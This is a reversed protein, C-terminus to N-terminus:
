NNEVMRELRKIRGEHDVATRALAIVSLLAINGYQMELWGNREDVAEPLLEKWYQASSGASVGTGDKWRFRFAPAGAIQAPTLSVDGIIRKLRMDSSTNAGKCSVYGDSTLGTSAFITSPSNIAGTTSITVEGLTSTTGNPRLYMIGGTGSLITNNYSSGNWRLIINGGFKYGISTSTQSINISSSMTISGVGTMDGSVNATGDFPRGWITRATQLKTASAVNSDTFALKVWSRWTTGFRVRVYVHQTQNYPTLYDPFYMQAITSSGTDFVALTGYNYAGPPVISSNNAYYYAGNDYSYDVSSSTLGRGLFYESSDKGDLLDADLGSGSGDNGSHWMQYVTGAASQSFIPQNPYLGSGGVGLIGLVGSANSYKIAAASTDNNRVINLSSGYDYTTITLTGTMGDGAANVYRDDAETKTYADTIGYGALTTPKGTLSAFTHTHSAPAFTSPKGTIESWSYSPKTSGIWSPKGTIESWSSAGTELLVNVWEGNQYVLSQGNQPNSIAVDTLKSLETVGSPTTGADGNAGKTSIFSTAYFGCATGDSKEVYLAGTAADWKLRASGVQLYQSASVATAGTLAGSMTIDAVDELSGSVNATGDFPRGWITRATQLKTASAVNSDTFALKVWSRWTTGFRVRVYVHQTQNYPTLYDPFYMQAITSSGTDFVALTGYNYAGPPVISSNNAYYYAGNDYSYDVSSSTLGRGLFYESSDKGDLLDADLGSGSGDNGSHWMQYVTGAASQSFIPQNPYLGSGGVGLIGLVGSANSYKIAAASTDNNRVINLSSGYDYTTITLTGTMGDGAANVYRDDAETKTYADTIGYGALTTPKGTLSAFTHTHSAPAFTSPKGTIESWSYSPKTSGIWSPKGTIESWSSAGTELLVNVWEGNQYVLSQGNQPNSIAVDTLKSLETVGAVAGGASPNAGKASVFGTSYFGCQTGDSKEVYLAGNASDYRLRASGVQIYDSAVAHTLNDLAKVYSNYNAEDLLMRWGNITNNHFGTRFMVGNDKYTSLSSSSNHNVYLDFRMGNPVPFSIGEGYNYLRYDEPLSDPYCGSFSRIGIASYLTDGDATVTDVYRMFDSKDEADM